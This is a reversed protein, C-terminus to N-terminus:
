PGPSCARWRTVPHTLSLKTRPVALVMGLVAMLLVKHAHDSRQGARKTALSDVGGMLIASLRTCVGGSALRYRRVDGPDREPVGPVHHLGQLTVSRAAHVPACTSGCWAVATVASLAACAAHLSCAPQVSSGAAGEAHCSCLFLQMRMVSCQVSHMAGNSGNLAALRRESRHKSSSNCVCVSHAPRSVCLLARQLCCWCCLRLCMAGLLLLAARTESGLV